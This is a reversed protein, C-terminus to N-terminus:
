LCSSHQTCLNAQERALAKAQMQEVRQHASDRADDQAKVLLAPSPPTSDWHEVLEMLIKAFTVRTIGGGAVWRAEFVCYVGDAYMPLVLPARSPLELRKAVEDVIRSGLTLRPQM